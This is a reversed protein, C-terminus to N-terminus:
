VFGSMDLHKAWRLQTAVTMKKLTGFIKPFDLNLRHSGTPIDVGVGISSRVRYYMLIYVGINM